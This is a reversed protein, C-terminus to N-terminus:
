RPPKRTSFAFATIAGIPSAFTATPISRWTPPTILFGGRPTDGAPGHALHVSGSLYRRLCEGTGSAGRIQRDVHHVRRKPLAEARPPEELGGCLHQGRQRPHHGVAQQVGGRWQR